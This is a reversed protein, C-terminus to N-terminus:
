HSKCENINDNINVHYDILNLILNSSNKMDMLESRFQVSVLYPFMDCNSSNSTSVRMGKTGIYLLYDIEM